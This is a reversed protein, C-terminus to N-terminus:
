RGRKTTFPDRIEREAIYHDYEGAQPATARAKGLPAKEQRRFGGAKANQREGAVLSRARRFFGCKGSVFRHAYHAGKKGGESTPFVKELVGISIGAMALAFSRRLPIHM